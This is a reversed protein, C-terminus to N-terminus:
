DPLNEVTVNKAAEIAEKLKTYVVLMTTADSGLEAAIAARTYTRVLNRIEPLRAEALNVIQGLKDRVKNAVDTITQEPIPVDILAM